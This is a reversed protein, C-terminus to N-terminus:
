EIWLRASRLANLRQGLRRTPTVDGSIAGVVSRRVFARSATRVSHLQRIAVTTVQAVFSKM